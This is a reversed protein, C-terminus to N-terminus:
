HTCRVATTARHEGFPMQIKQWGAKDMYGRGKQGIEVDVIADATYQNRMGALTEVGNADVHSWEKLAPWPYQDKVLGPLLLPEADARNAHSVFSEVGPPTAPRNLQAVRSRQGSQVSDTSM